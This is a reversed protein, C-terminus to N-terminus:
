QFEVPTGKSLHQALFIADWNTLRVCGHSTVYGITEPSATGHMGYHPKSLDIWVLGVPSNPGPPLMADPDTDPVEHFLAPQYHFHPNWAIADVEVTESPSPDYKSGVTSPFEYLIRGQPDLALTYFGKKSVVVRAITPPAAGEASGAAGPAGLAPRTGSTQREAVDEGAGPLRMPEVRPVRLVTGRQLRSLDIGQNWAALARWTTHFREAIQEAPSQYCLCSLKAKEYIDSPVDVFTGMLDSAQVTYTALPDLSAAGAETGELSRLTAADPVGTAQLEHARQYWYVAKATNKGWRGDVVGPSFRARDLSIQLRLISFADTSDFPAAAALARAMGSASSDRGTGRPRWSGAPGKWSEDFRGMEIAASDSEDFGGAPTSVDSLTDARAARDGDMDRRSVECSCLILSLM